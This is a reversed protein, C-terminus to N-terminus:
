AKLAAIIENVKVKLANALAQTTEPDSGDATAVATLATVEAKTPVDDAAVDFAGAKIGEILGLQSVLELKEVTTTM